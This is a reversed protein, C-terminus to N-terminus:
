ARRWRKDQALILSEAWYRKWKGWFALRLDEPAQPPDHKWGWRLDGEEEEAGRQQYHADVNPDFKRRAVTKKGKDGQRENSPKRM